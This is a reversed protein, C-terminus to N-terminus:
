AIGSRNAATCRILYETDAPVIKNCRYHDAMYINKNEESYKEEYEKYVEQARKPGMFEIAEDHLWIGIEISDPFDPYEECDLRCLEMLMKEHDHMTKRIIQSRHADQRWSGEVSNTVAAVFDLYPFAYKLKVADSILEDLDPYRSTNSNLGIIGSPHCWGYYWDSGFWSNHFNLLRISEETEFHDNFYFDTRRIIDLAQEETVQKGRLQYYPYKIQSKWDSVEEDIVLEIKNLREFNEGDIYQINDVGDPVPFNRGLYYELFPYFICMPRGHELQELKKMDVYVGTGRTWEDSFVMTGTLDMRKVYELLKM